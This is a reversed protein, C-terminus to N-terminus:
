SVCSAFLVELEIWLLVREMQMFHERKILLNFEAQQMAQMNSKWGGNAVILWAVSKCAEGPRL